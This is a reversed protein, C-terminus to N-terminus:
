GCVSSDTGNAIAQNVCNIYQDTADGTHAVSAVLVIALLIGLAIFIYGLVLGATALGSPQRGAVKAEHHSVHGLVVAAPPFVFAAVFATIALGNNLAPTGQPLVDATDITTM